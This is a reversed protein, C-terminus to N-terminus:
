SGVASPKLASAVKTLLHRQYCHFFCSVCVDFARNTSLIRSCDNEAVAQQIKSLLCDAAEAVSSGTIVLARPATGTNASAFIDKTFKEMNKFEATESDPGPFAPWNDWLCTSILPPISPSQQISLFLIDLRQNM